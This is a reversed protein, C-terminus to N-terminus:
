PSPVIVNKNNWHHKINETSIILYIWWKDLLSSEHYKPSFMICYGLILFVVSILFNITFFISVTVNSSKVNEKKGAWFFFCWFTRFFACTWLWAVCIIFLEVTCYGMKMFYIYVTCLNVFVYMCKNTYIYIYLSLSLSLTHTHIHTDRQRDTETHHKHTHTHVDVCLPAAYMRIGNALYCFLFLLKQDANLIYL